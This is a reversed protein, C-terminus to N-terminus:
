FIGSFNTPGYKESTMETNLFNDLALTCRIKTKDYNISQLKLELLEMQIVDPMSALIMELDLNIESTVSRLSNILALSVNDFELSVTRASEGDDPPLVIKMPFALFTNGRSIIDVSNNCLYIPESFDEHTLTVLTIFPDSSEQSMLQSIFETNLPNSM